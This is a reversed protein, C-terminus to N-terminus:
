SPNGLNLYIPTLPVQEDPLGAQWRDWALQALLSPRRMCHVPPALRADKCHQALYLRQLSNLEGCVLTPQQIFATLDEVLGTRLSGTSRWGQGSALYTDFALRGRGAQLLAVLPLDAPPLAAAVGDLTPIGVVPRHTAIAMGKIFALGIRLATFSGPGLAVALLELNHPQVKCRNLMTEVAPALEVTHYNDSQWTNEALVQSGDFLCLGIAHNSTDVALIM